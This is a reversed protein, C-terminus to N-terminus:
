YTKTTPLSPCTKNATEMANRRIYNSTKKSGSLTYRFHKSLCDKAAQRLHLAQSVAPQTNQRVPLAVPSAGAQSCAFVLSCHQLKFGSASVAAWCIFELLCAGLRYRRM